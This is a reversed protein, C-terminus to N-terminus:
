VPFRQFPRPAGLIKGFRATERELMQKFRDANESAMQQGAVPLQLSAARMPMERSGHPSLTEGTLITTSSQYGEIHQCLLKDCEGQQEKYDAALQELRTAASDRDLIKQKFSDLTEERRKQIAGLEDFERRIATFVRYDLVVDTFKQGNPLAIDTVVVTSGKAGPHQKLWERVIRKDKNEARDPDCIEQERKLRLAELQADRDKPQQASDIFPSPAFLEENVVLGLDVPDAAIVNTVRECMWGQRFWELDTVTADGKVMFFDALEDMPLRAHHIQSMVSFRNFCDENVAEMMQLREIAEQLNPSGQDGARELQAIKERQKQFVQQGDSNFWLSGRSGDLQVGASLLARSFRDQM